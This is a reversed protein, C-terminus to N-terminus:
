VGGSGSANGPGLPFFRRRCKDCACEPRHIAVPGTRTRVERAPLTGNELSVRRGPKQCVPCPAGEEKPQALEDNSAHQELCWRALGMGVELARTEREELTRLGPQHEPDFMRGFAAEARRNFEAKFAKMEDASLGRFM